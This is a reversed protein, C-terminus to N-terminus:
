QKPWFNGDRPFRIGSGDWVGTFDKPGGKPSFDITIKDGNVMAPLEFAAPEGRGGGGVVKALRFDGLKTDLFSIERFGGPHNVPDTYRGVFVEGPEAAITAAPALLSLLGGVSVARRSVATPVVALGDVLAASLLWVCTSHQRPM